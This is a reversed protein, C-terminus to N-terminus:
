RYSAHDHNDVRVSAGAFFPTLYIFLYLLLTNWLASKALAVVVLWRWRGAVVHNPAEQQFLAKQSCRSEPIIKNQLTRTTLGVTNKSGLRGDDIRPGRTNHRLSNTGRGTSFADKLLLTFNLPFTDVSGAQAAEHLHHFDQVRETEAACSFREFELGAV